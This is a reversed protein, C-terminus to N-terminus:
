AIGWRLLRSGRIHIGDHAGFLNIVFVQNALAQMRGGEQLFALGNFVMLVTHWRSQGSLQKM